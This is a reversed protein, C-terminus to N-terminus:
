WREFADLATAALRRRDIHRLALASRIAKTKDASIGVGECETTAIFGTEIQLNRSKFAAWTAPRVTVVAGGITTTEPEGVDLVLHKQTLPIGARAVRYAAEYTTEIRQRLNNGSPRDPPLVAIQEGEDLIMLRYNTRWARFANLRPTTRNRFLEKRRIAMRSGITDFSLRAAPPKHYASSFFWEGQYWLRVKRNRRKKRLAAAKRELWEIDDISLHIKAFRSLRWKLRFSACRHAQYITYIRWRKAEPLSRLRHPVRDLRQNTYRRRGM